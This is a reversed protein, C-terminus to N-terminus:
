YILQFVVQFDSCCLLAMNFIILFCNTQVRVYSVVFQMKVPFDGKKNEVM